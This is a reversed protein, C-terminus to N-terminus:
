GASPARRRATRDHEDRADLEADARPVVRRRPREVRRLVAAAAHHHHVRALHGDHDHLCPRHVDHHELDDIDHVGGDHDVDPVDDDHDRRRDHHEHDDHDRSRDVDDHQNGLRDDHDHNRV